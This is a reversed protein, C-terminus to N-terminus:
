ASLPDQFWLTSFALVLMGDLTLRRQRIIPRIVFWGVLCLGVPISVAQFFVMAVKMYIPPDTPGTPVREFFPGTVWDTLVYAIFVLIVAGLGAWWKVPVLRRPEQAVATRNAAAGTSRPIKTVAAPTTAM